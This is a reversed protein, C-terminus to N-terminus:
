QTSQAPPPEPINGHAPTVLLVRRSDRELERLGFNKVLEDGDKILAVCFVRKPGTLLAKLLEPQHIVNPTDAATANYEFAASAKVPATAPRHWLVTRELYFPLGLPLTGYVVVAAQQQPDEHRIREALFKAPAKSGLSREVRPIVAFVSMIVALTAAVLMGAGHWLGRKELATIMMVAALVAVGAPFVALTLPLGYRAPGAVALALGMGAVVLASIMGCVRGIKRLRDAALVHPLRVLTLATLLALAPTLPLVYTPLKSRSLTFLLLGAGAWFLCMRLLRMEPPPLSRRILPALALWPTWPMMGGALVPLFFWWPEGRGHVDSLVRGVTERGLFYSWVEPRGWASAVFWPLSIALLVVIGRGWGMKRLRLEPSRWRMGVLAFLPLILALPGKTIMGLGLFAFFWVTQRWGRDKSESWHWLAWASWTVWCTLLMDTTILRAVGIFLLSSLLVAAAWLGCVEGAARRGLLYVALLTGMAALAAPLRAAFENVGFTKLSFAILWYTLPPKALHPVGNLRPTLYDGSAVMERGGEAYRGEDPENLGRGGLQFFLVFVATLALLVRWGVLSKGERPAPVPAPAASLETSM